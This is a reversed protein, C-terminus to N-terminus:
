AEKRSSPLLRIGGDCGRAKIRAEPEKTMWIDLAGSAERKIVKQVKIRLSIREDVV